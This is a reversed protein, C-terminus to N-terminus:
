GNGAAFAIRRNLQKNANTTNPVLPRSQGYGVSTLRSPALGAKSLFAVVARARNESLRQNRDHHGDSSTHGEVRIPIDPCAKLAAAM